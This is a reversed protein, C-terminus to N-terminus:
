ISYQRLNPFDSRRFPTTWQVDVGSLFLFQLNRLNRIESSFDGQLNNSGLDLFELRQLSWLGRPVAGHLSNKGLNLIRLNSLNSVDDPIGGLFNNNHLYLIQLEKLTGIENPIAGTLNNRYLDLERLNTLLGIEPPITGSLSNGSLNLVLLNSLSCLEVPISGELRGYGDMVIQQLASLRGVAKPIGGAISSLPVGTGGDEPWKIELCLKRRMEAFVEQFSSPWVIWLRLYEKEIVRGVSDQPKGNSILEPACFQSLCLRAFHTTSLCECISKSLRKYKLVNAPHIWAFMKTVIELPIHSMRTYFKRTPNQLQLVQLSTQRQIHYFQHISTQLPELSIRLEERLEERKIYDQQIQASLSTQTETLQELRTHVSLLLKYIADLTGRQHQPAVQCVEESHESALQMLQIGNSVNSISVQEASSAISAPHLLQEPCHKKAPNM